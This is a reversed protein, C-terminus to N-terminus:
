IQGQKRDRDFDSFQSGSTALKMLLPAPRWWYPDREAFESIRALVRPLGLSDAYHMPGGRYRPFGFGTMYIVDIDSARSAIGEELLRAGENVLAFLCRDL